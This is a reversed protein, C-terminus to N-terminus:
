MYGDERRKREAFFRFLGFAGILLSVVLVAISADRGNTSAALGAARGDEFPDIYIAGPAIKMRDSVEDIAQRDSGPPLLSGDLRLIPAFKGEGVVLHALQEGTATGHQLMVGIAPASTDTATTPYVPAILWRERVTGSKSRTVEMSQDMDVQGLVVVENATGTNKAPDFAEIKVEAPPKAARAVTKAAESKQDDLYLYVSGAVGIPALILYVIAPLRFMWM